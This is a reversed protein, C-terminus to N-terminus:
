RNLEYAMQEAKLAKDLADSFMAELRKMEKRLTSLEEESGKFSCYADQSARYESALESALQAYSEARKNWENAYFQENATKM